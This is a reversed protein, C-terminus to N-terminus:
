HLPHGPIPNQALPEYIPWPCGALILEFSYIRAGAQAFMLVHRKYPLTWSHGHTLFSRSKALNRMILLAAWPLHASDGSAVGILIGLHITGSLLVSSETGFPFWPVTFQVARFSMSSYPSTCM